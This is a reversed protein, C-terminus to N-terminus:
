FRVMFDKIVVHFPLFIQAMSTTKGVRLRAPCVPKEYDVSLCVSIKM